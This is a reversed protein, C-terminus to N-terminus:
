LTPQGGIISNAWIEALTRNSIWEDLEEIDLRSLTTNGGKRDAVIIDDARFKNLLETSQTSIIVQRFQSVVYVIHYLLDLAQPHLGVDPEDILIIDPRKEKPYRFVAVLCAFRLMGDSLLEPALPEKNGHELWRLRIMEPNDEDPELYFEEFFPAIIQMRKAIRQYDGIYNAKLSYLYTALNDGSHSLKDGLSIPHPRRIASGASIEHFHYTRCDIKTIDPDFEPLRTEYHGSGISHDHYGDNRITEEAFVM